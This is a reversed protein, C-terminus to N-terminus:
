LSTKLLYDFFSNSFHVSIFFYFKVKITITQSNNRDFYNFAYQLSFQNTLKPLDVPTFDVSVEEEKIPPPPPPPPGSILEQPTDESM